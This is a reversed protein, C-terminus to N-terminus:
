NAVSFHKEIFRSLEMIKDTTVGDRAEITQGKTPDEGFFCINGKPSFNINLRVDNEGKGHFTTNVSGDPCPNVEFYQMDKSNMKAIIKLFKFAETAALEKNPTNISRGLVSEFRKLETDINPFIM